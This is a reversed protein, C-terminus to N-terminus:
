IVFRKPPMNWEFLLRGFIVSIDDKLVVFPNLAKVGSLSSKQDLKSVVQLGSHRTKFYLQLRALTDMHRFLTKIYNRRSKKDPILVLNDSSYAALTENMCKRCPTTDPKKDEVLVEDHNMGKDIFSVIEELSAKQESMKQFAYETGEGLPKRYPKTFFHSFSNTKDNLENKLQNSSLQGFVHVSSKLASLHAM